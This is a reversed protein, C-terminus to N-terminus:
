PAGWLSAVMEQPLSRSKEPDHRSGLLWVLEELGLKGRQVSDVLQNFGARTVQGPQRAAAPGVHGTKEYYTLREFVKRYGAGVAQVAAEGASDSLRLSQGELGELTDWIELAASRSIHKSRLAVYYGQIVRQKEKELLEILQQLRRQQSQELLKLPASLLNRIGLLPGWFGSKRALTRRVTELLAPIRFPKYVYDDVQLGIARAPADESAYGTIMVVKINPQFKKVGAVAGLGDTPGAMRIDSIMLQFPVKSALEIAADPRRAGRPEYGAEELAECLLELMNSDDELVLIRIEESVAANTNM